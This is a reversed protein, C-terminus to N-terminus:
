RRHHFAPATSVVQQRLAFLFSGRKSSSRRDGVIRQLTSAGPPRRVEESAGAQEILEGRIVVVANEIPADFRPDIMRDAKVVIVEQAWGAVAFGISVFVLIGRNMKM